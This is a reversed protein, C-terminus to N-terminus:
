AMSDVFGELPCARSVFSPAGVPRSVGASPPKAGQCGCYFRGRGFYLFTAREPISLRVVGPPQRPRFSFFLRGVGDVSGPM